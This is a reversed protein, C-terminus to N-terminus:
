ARSTKNKLKSRQHEGDRVQGEQLQGVKEELDLHQDGNFIVVKKQTIGHMTGPRSLRVRTVIMKQTTKRLINLHCIGVEQTYNTPNVKKNIM